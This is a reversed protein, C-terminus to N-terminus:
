AWTVTTTDEDCYLYKDLSSYWKVHLRISFTIVKEGAIALYNFLTVTDFAALALLKLLSSRQVRGQNM